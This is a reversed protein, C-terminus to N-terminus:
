SYFTYDNIFNDILMEALSIKRVELEELIMAQSTTVGVNGFAHLTRDSENTGSDSGSHRSTNNRSISDSGSLTEEREISTSDSGSITDVKGYEIEETGNRSIDNEEHITHTDNFTTRDQINDYTTTSKSDKTYTNPSNFGAKENEVKESGTKLRTETGTHADTKDTDNSITETNTTTDSGSLTDIKGYDIENSETISNSKGYTTTDTGTDTVTHGYTKSDEGVINEEETRNYNEIPNYNYDFLTQYMRNINRWRNLLYLKYTEHYSEAVDYITASGGFLAPYRRDGYKQKMYHRASDSSIITVDNGDKDLATISFDRLNEASLIDFVESVIKIAM